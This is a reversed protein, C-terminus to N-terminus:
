PTGLEKRMTVHTEVYGVKGYLARATANGGFVHLEVTDLGLERAKDELALMTQRGYGKGRQPEDMEIDYIFMVDGTPRKRRALWLIGVSTGEDNVVTYLYNDPTALGDPLLEDYSKQSLALAEEPTWDGARVHSEAYDRVATELYRAYAADDMPVLKVMAGGEDTANM